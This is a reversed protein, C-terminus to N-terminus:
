VDKGGYFVKINFELRDTNDRNIVFLDKGIGVFAATGDADCATIIGAYKSFVDRDLIDALYRKRGGKFICDKERHPRFILPLRAAFVGPSLNGGSSVHISLDAKRM